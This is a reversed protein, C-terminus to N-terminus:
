NDTVQYVAVNGRPTTNAQRSISVMRITEVSTEFYYIEDTSPWFPTLGQEESVQTIIGTDTNIVFLGSRDVYAIRSSDSAWAVNSSIGTTTALTQVSGEHIDLLQIAAETKSRITTFAIRSGDPSWVLTANSNLYESLLIPFSRLNSGNVDIISIDRITLTDIFLLGDEDFPGRNVRLFAIDKGSPSWSPLMDFYDGQTLQHVNKGDAGMIYLGCCDGERTSVFAIENGDPSWSPMSDWAPNDTLNVLQSSTDMCYIEHNGERNSVFAFKAGDPSWAPAYNFDYPDGSDLSLLKSEPIQLVYTTSCVGFDRNVFRNCSVFAVKDGSSSWIGSRYDFIAGDGHLISYRM